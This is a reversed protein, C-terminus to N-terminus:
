PAAWEFGFHVGLDGGGYGLPLPPMPDGLQVARVASRDFFDYGSSSELRVSLVDGGRGIKFYVVARVPKGGSSLGAPPTWGQAVRNRVLTLYYTFEFNTDTSVDGKLGANGVSASPLAPAAPAPRPKEPEPERQKPKPQKPPEPLKVGEDDTKEIREPEQKAPPPAPPPPTVVTMNASPDVLAVQVVDPGPVMVSVPPRTVFLAVLIAVHLVTSGIVSGRV